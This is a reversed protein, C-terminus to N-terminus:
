ESQCTDGTYGNACDCHYGAVEDICEGDNLCTVSACDNINAAIHSFFTSKLM